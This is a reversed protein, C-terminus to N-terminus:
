YGTPRRVDCVAWGDHATSVRILTYNLKV